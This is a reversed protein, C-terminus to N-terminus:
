PRLPNEDLPLVQLPDECSRLMEAISLGSLPHIFDPALEALPLLAFRRQALQAHPITLGPQNVTQQGYLLIDMDLEREMWRRREQRGLEKEIRQIQELVEDPSLRCSLELAQNLFFPQGSEGWPETQYISSARLLTGIYRGALLGARRLQEERQGLNSGLLLYLMDGSSELPIFTAVAGPMLCGRVTEATTNKRWGDGPRDLHLDGIM